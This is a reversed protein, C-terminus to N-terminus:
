FVNQFIKRMGTEDFRHVQIALTEKDYLIVYPDLDIVAVESPANNLLFDIIERNRNENPKLEEM